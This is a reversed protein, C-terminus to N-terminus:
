APLKTLLDAGEEQAFHKCEPRTPLCVASFTVSNWYEHRDLRVSLLTLIINSRGGPQLGPSIPDLGEGYFGADLEHQLRLEPEGPLSPTRVCCLRGEHLQNLEHLISRAPPIAPQTPMLISLPISSCGDGGAGSSSTGHGDHQRDQRQQSWEQAGSHYLRCSSSLACRQRGIMATALIDGPLFSLCKKVISYGKHSIGAHKSFPLARRWDFGSM